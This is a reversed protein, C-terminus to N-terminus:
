SKGGEGASVRRQEPPDIEDDDLAHSSQTDQARHAPTLRVTLLMALWVALTVSMRQLDEALGKGAFDPILTISGLVVALAIATSVVTTPRNSVAITLIATVAGVLLLIMQFYRGLPIDSLAGLNAGLLASFFLNVGAMTARREDQTYTILGRLM